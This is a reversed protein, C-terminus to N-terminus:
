RDTKLEESAIHFATNAAPVGAYVSMQMLTEKLDCPELERELGVSGRMICHCDPDQQRLISAHQGGTSGSAIELCHFMPAAACGSQKNSALHVKRRDSAFELHTALAHATPVFCPLSTAGIRQAARAPRPALRFHFLLLEMQHISRESM